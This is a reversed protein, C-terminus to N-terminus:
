FTVGIQAGLVLANPINGTGGPNVVWQVDPQAYLFKNIQVRYAWEFVMEYSPSGLGAALTSISRPKM